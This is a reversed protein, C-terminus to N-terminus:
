SGLVGWFLAGSAVLLLVVLAAVAYDPVRSSSVAKAHM